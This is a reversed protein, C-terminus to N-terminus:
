RHALFLRKRVPIESAQLPSLIEFVEDGKGVPRAVLAGSGTRDATIVDGRATRFVVKNDGLEEVKLVEEDSLSPSCALLEGPHGRGNSVYQGNSARLAIRTASLNVVGFQEFANNPVRQSTLRDTTRSRCVFRRDRTRLVIQCSVKAASRVQPVSDLRLFSYGKERLVPILTKVMEFTRNNAQLYPHSGGDHMLVIGRGTREIQDQYKQVCSPVSEGRGWCEWDGGLIDWHIPGVSNPFKGSANLAEALRSVPPVSEGASVPDFTRLPAFSATYARKALRALRRVAKVLISRKVTYQHNWWVGFPPRFFITEGTVHPRIVADTREVEEVVDGGARTFDVLHPHSYTHNAVLHGWGKLESLIDAKDAAHSGIVFFTAQIGNEHLYRGLDRTRPGPGESDTQGPGDDFTLCLTKYPVRDAKIVEHFFV